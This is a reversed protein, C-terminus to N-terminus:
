CFLRSKEKMFWLYSFNLLPSHIVNQIFSEFEEVKVYVAEIQEGDVGGGQAIKDNENVVAFYFSQKSVGSGFGTYFDGIKEFIKPAYGLEEICEEKAIQELSINKDVLGSCLEITYGMNEDKKYTKDRNQHYWLPIRFQRVFIFSKFTQHYLLISVSDKAEIFDWVCAKNNSKYSFRKPKIYISSDFYEEQLDTFAM